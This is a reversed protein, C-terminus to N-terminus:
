TVNLSLGVCAVELALRDGHPNEVGQFTTSIIDCFRTFRHFLSLATILWSLKLLLLLLKMLELGKQMASLIVLNLPYSTSLKKTLKM